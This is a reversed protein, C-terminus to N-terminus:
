IKTFLSVVTAGVEESYELWARVCYWGSSIFNIKPLINLKPLCIWRDLVAQIGNLTQIYNNTVTHNRSPFIQTGLGSDQVVPIGPPVPPGKTSDNLPLLSSKTWNIWGSLCSLEECICLLNSIFYHSRWLSWCMM